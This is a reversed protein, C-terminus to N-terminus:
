RKSYTTAINDTKKWLFWGDNKPFSDELFEEIMTYFAKHDPHPHLKNDPLRFTQRELETELERYKKMVYM